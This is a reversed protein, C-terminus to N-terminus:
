NPMENIVILKLNCYCMTSILMSSIYNIVNGYYNIQESPDFIMIYYCVVDISELM